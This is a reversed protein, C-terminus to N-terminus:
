AASDRRTPRLTFGSRNGKKPRTPTEVAREIPWGHGLRWTVTDPWIDFQECLDILRRREGRYTVWTTSRRNRNNESRTVWRVNGPEYGRDNEIRDIEHRQSPKPGIHAFFARFDDIWEPAITIGRGGYAHYAPNKPNLCRLRMTQWARYEPLYSGGHKCKPSSNLWRSISKTSEDIAM